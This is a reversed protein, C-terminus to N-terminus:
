SSPHLISLGRTCAGGGRGGVPHSGCRVEQVQQVGELAEVWRRGELWGAALGRVRQPAPLGGLRGAVTM